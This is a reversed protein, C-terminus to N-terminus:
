SKPNLSDVINKNLSRWAPIIASSINLVLCVVFTILFVAPNILMSPFLSVDVGDPLPGPWHNLIDLLWNKTFFILIWSFLLGALGGLVTLLFNEYLLQNLLSIRSAGFAKRVGMEVMRKEMRSSVMGSLNIAPVLLLLLLFFFANSFVKGWEPARNSSYRFASRFFPDPQDNLNVLRETQTSNFRRITEQVEQYARKSDTIKKLLLYAKMSGLMGTDGFTKKYYAMCTYPVWIQAFTIPTAYSVDRVVGCVNYDIFNMKITRGTAQETGFVRRALSQSIVAKRVGSTFEEQTYPKGDVFSFPFVTWFSADTCKMETPLLSNDDLEVFVGDNDTNLIATVAEPVELPYFYENITKYSFQSVNVRGNKQADKEVEIGVGLVMMRSRNTEPYINGIKVYYVIAIVMVMTIALGTGVIYISSFLKNQKLLQWAQKFYSKIM